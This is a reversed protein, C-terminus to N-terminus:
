FPLESIVSPSHNNDLKNNNNQSNLGDAILPEQQNSENHQQKEQSQQLPPVLSSLPFSQDALRLGDTIMTKMADQKAHSQVPSPLMPSFPFSDANAMNIASSFLVTVISACLIIVASSPILTQSLDIKFKKM